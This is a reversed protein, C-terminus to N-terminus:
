AEGTKGKRSEEIADILNRAEEPSVEDKSNIKMGWGDPYHDLKPDVVKTEAPTSKPETM